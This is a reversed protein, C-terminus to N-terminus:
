RKGRGKVVMVGLQVENLTWDAGSKSEVWMWGEKKMM